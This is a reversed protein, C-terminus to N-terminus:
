KIQTKDGEYEEWTEFCKEIWDARKSPDLEALLCYAYAQNKSNNSNTVYDDSQEVFKEITM